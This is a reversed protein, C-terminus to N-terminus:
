LRERRVAALQSRGALAQFLLVFGILVGYRGLYAGNFWMAAGGTMLFLATSGIVPWHTPTPLFYWPQSQTM